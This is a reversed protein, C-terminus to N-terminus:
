CAACCFDHQTAGRTSGTVLTRYLHVICLQDLCEMALLYLGDADLFARDIELNHAPLDGPAYVVIKFM